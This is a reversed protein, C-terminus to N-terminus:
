QSRGPYVRENMERSQKIISAIVAATSIGDTGCIEWVVLHHYMIFLDLPFVSCTELENTPFTGIVAYGDKVSAPFPPLPENARVDEALVHGCLDADQSRLSADPIYNYRKGRRESREKKEPDSRPIWLL